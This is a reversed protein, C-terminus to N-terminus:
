LGLGKRRYTKLGKGDPPPLVARVSTGAGGVWRWSGGKGKGLGSAVWNGASECLIEPYAFLVRLTDKRSVELRTRGLGGFLQMRLGDLLGVYTVLYDTFSPAQLASTPGAEGRRPMTNSAVGSWVEGYQPAVVGHVGFFDTNRRLMVACRGGRGLTGEMRADSLPLWCSLPWPCQALAEQLPMLRVVRFAPTKLQAEAFWWSSADQGDHCRLSEALDEPIEADLAQEALRISSEALGPRLAALAEQVASAKWFAEIRGWLSRVRRRIALAPAYKRLLAARASATGTGPAQKLGCADALDGNGGFAAPLPRVRVHRALARWLEESQAVSRTSSSVTALLCVDEPALFGSGGVLEAVALM